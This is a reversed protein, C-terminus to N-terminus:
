RTPRRRGAARADCGPRRRPRVHQGREAVAVPHVRVAPRHEGAPVHLDRRPGPRRGTGGAAAAPGYPIGRRILRHRNVLKGDFPLSLRPNARRVHAGVPLASRRPRQRLRFANNRQEDAALAADASAPSLEVPTGDRWRGVIKAALLEEGGPYLAASEALRARFAAVDQHLKRYVLFSGNISLEVPPPAPPCCGRRTPIASSSSAPASRGGTATAWRLERSRADARRRQGRDVAARVRRRLRLARRRRAARRRRGRLRDDARRKGRDRRAGARRARPAGAPADRQDDGARARRPRRPRGGLQRPARATTASCTRARRWGRASSRPSGPWRHTPCSGAGAPGLLQLRHQRGLGAQTVVAGRDARRRRDEAIWAAARTSTTSRAPVPLAAFPLRYGRM